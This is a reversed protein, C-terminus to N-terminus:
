KTRESRGSGTGGSGPALDTFRKELEAWTKSWETLPVIIRELVALQEDFAELQTRMAAISKRQAGVTTAVSHLQAASLAGPPPPLKPLGPLSPLGSVSPLAQALGTLGALRDTVGRLQAIFDHMSAGGGSPQSEEDAM